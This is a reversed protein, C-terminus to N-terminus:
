YILFLGIKCFVSFIDIVLLLYWGYCVMVVVKICIIFNRNLLVIICVLFGWEVYFVKGEFIFCFRLFKGGVFESLNGFNYFM